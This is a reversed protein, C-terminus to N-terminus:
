LKFKNGLFYITLILSFLVKQPNVLYHLHLHPEDIVAIIHYKNFNIDTETFSQTENRETDMENTLSEWSNLDKIHLGSKNPGQNGNLDGKGILTVFPEEPEIEPVLDKHKCNLLLFCCSLFLIIKENKM